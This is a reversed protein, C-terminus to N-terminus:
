RQRALTPASKGDGETPRGATSLPERPAQSPVLRDLSVIAYRNDPRYYWVAEFRRLRALPEAIIESTSDIVRKRDDRHALPFIVVHTPESTAFVSVWAPRQMGLVMTIGMSRGQTMLTEVPARLGLMKEIYFLEDLYLTWHGDHFVRRM